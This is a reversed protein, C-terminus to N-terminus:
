EESVKDRVGWLWPKCLRHTSLPLLSNVILFFWFCHFMLEDQCAKQLFVSTFCLPWYAEHLAGRQEWPGGRAGGKLKDQSSSLVKGCAGAM